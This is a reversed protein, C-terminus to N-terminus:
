EEDEEPLDPIVEQISIGRRELETMLIESKEQSSVIETGVAEAIEDWNFVKKDKELIKSVLSDLEEKEM